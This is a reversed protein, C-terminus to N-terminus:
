SVFVWEVSVPSRVTKQVAYGKSTHRYVDRGGDLNMRVNHKRSSRRQSQHSASVSDRGDGAPGTNIATKVRRYGATEIALTDSGAGLMVVLNLQTRDLHTLWEHRTRIM